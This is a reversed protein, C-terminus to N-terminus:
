DRIDGLFKLLVAKSSGDQSTALTVVIATPRRTAWVRNLRCRFLASREGLVEFCGGLLETFDAPINPAAPHVTITSHELCPYVKQNEGTPGILQVTTGTSATCGAVSGPGSMNESAFIGTADDAASPASTGGFIFQHAPFSPGQNTQFMYNAWGYQTALQLYPTVVGSSNDVYRSQPKSLCKGSCKVGSSGDMKCAGTVPDQDCQAVFASHAHSLDYKNALPVTAPETVGAASTRDLWNSTQINYQSGTPTVSCSAASGFPASCLGQFLNDPTRNEQFIVVIHQFNPIQAIAAFSGSSVLLVSKAAVRLPRYFRKM